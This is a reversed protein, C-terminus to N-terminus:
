LGAYNLSYVQRNVVIADGHDNMARATEALVVYGAMLDPVEGIAVAAINDGNDNTISVSGSNPDASMLEALQDLTIIAETRDVFRCLLQERLGRIPTITDIEATALSDLPDSYFEYRDVGGALPSAYMKSGNMTALFYCGILDSLLCDTALEGTAPQVIDLLHSIVQRTQDYPIRILVTQDKQDRESAALDVVLSMIPMISPEEIVYHCIIDYDVIKAIHSQFGAMTQMSINGPKCLKQRLKDIDEIFNLASLELVEENTYDVM